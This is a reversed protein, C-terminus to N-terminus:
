GLCSPNSIVTAESIIAMKQKAFSRLSRSSLIPLIVIPQTLGFKRLAIAEKKSCAVLCDSKKLNNREYLKLAIKKKLSSVELKEPELYGHPSIVVKKRSGSSLSLLSIPLFVGHQHILLNKYNLKKLTIFFSLPVFFSSGTASIRKKEVNNDVAVQDELSKKGMFWLSSQYGLKNQYHLLAHVVQSVGGGLRGAINSLHLIKIM